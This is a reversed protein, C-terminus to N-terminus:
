SEDVIFTNSKELNETATIVQLNWPVHLGSVLKGQLPIIHDVHHDIGTEEQKSISLTYFEQIEKLQVETLWEPTAMIRRGRRKANRANTKAVNDKQYQKAREIRDDRNARYWERAKAKVLAADKSNALEKSCVTCGTGSIVRKALHGNSCPVGSFWYILGLEKANKYSIVVEGNVISGELLCVQKINPTYVKVCKSLRKAQEKLKKEELRKKEREEREEKQKEKKKEKRVVAEEQIRNKRKLILCECRLKKSSLCVDRIERVKGCLICECLHYYSRINGVGYSSHKKVRPKIVKQLNNYVKGEKVSNSKYPKNDKKYKKRFEKACCRCYHSFGDKKSKNKNFSEFSKEVRCKSCVKM